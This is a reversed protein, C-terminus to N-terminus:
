RTRPWLLTGEDSGFRARVVEREDRVCLIKEEDLVALLTAHSADLGEAYVVEGTTPDLRALRTAQDTRVRLVHRGGPTRALAAVGVGKSWTKGDLGQRAGTEPDYYGHLSREHDVVLWDLGCRNWARLDGPVDVGVHPV